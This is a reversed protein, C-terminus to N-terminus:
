ATSVTKAAIRSVEGALSGDEARHFLGRPPASVCSVLSSALILAFGLATPVALPSPRDREVPPDQWVGLRAAWGASM